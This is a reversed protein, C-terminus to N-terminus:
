HDMKSLFYTLAVIVMAVGGGLYVIDSGGSWVVAQGLFYVALVTITVGVLKSKLDDLSDIKLWQPLELDQNFYLQYLGLAVVQVVTALLFLDVIEIALLLAQDRGLEHGSFYLADVFHWTEIAGYIMLALAAIFTAVVPVLMVLRVVAGAVKLWAPRPRRTAAPAKPPLETPSM